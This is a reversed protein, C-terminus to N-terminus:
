CEISEWHNCELCTQYQNVDVLNGGAINQFRSEIKGNKDYERIDELVTYLQTKKSGCKLCKTFLRTIM